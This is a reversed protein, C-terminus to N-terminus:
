FSEMGNTHADGRIYESAAHNVSERKFWPGLANYAAAEDTHVTAGAQAKEAVFDATCPASTM